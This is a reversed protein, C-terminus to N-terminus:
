MPSATSDALQREEDVARDEVGSRIAPVSAVLARLLDEGAALREHRAVVDEHFRPQQERMPKPAVWGLPEPAREPAAGGGDLGDREAVEFDGERDALAKGVLVERDDVACAEGDHLPEADESGRGEVPVERDEAEAALAPAGRPARGHV